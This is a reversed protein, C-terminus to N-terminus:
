EQPGPLNRQLRAQALIAHVCGRAVCNEAVEDGERVEGEHLDSLLPNLVCLRSTPLGASVPGVVVDVVVDGAQPDGFVAAMVEGQPVSQAVCPYADRTERTIELEPRREYGMEEPRPRFGEAM